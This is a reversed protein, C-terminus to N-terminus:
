AADEIEVQLRSLAGEQRHRVLMESDHRTQVRHVLDLHECDRMATPSEGLRRRVPNDDPEREGYAVVREELPEPAHDREM